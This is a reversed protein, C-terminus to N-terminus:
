NEHQSFFLCIGCITLYMVYCNFIQHTIFKIIDKWSIILLIGYKLMGSISGIYRWVTGRRWCSPTPVITVYIRTTSHTWRLDFPSVKKAAVVSLDSTASAVLGGEDRSWCLHSLFYIRSKSLWNWKHSHSVILIRVLHFRWLILRNHQQIPSRPGEFKEPSGTRPWPIAGESDHGTDFLPISHCRQSVRVYVGVGVYLCQHVCM